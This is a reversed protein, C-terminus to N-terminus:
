GGLDNINDFLEKLDFVFRENVGSRHSFYTYIYMYSVIDTSIGSKQYTHLCIPLPLVTYPLHKVLSLHFMRIHFKIILIQCISQLNCLIM